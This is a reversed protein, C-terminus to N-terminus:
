LLRNVKRRNLESDTLTNLEQDTWPGHEAQFYSFSCPSMAHRKRLLRKGQLPLAPASLPHGPSHYLAQLHAWLGWLRQHLLAAGEAKLLQPPKLSHCLTKEQYM